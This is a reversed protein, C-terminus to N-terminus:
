VIFNRTHSANYFLVVTFFFNVFKMNQTFLIQTNEKYMKFNLSRM